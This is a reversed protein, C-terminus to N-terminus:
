WDDGLAEGRAPTVAAWFTSPSMDSSLVRVSGDALAALMGGRHPTQPIRPDCDEIAPRTQFTVYAISGMTTPPNGSRLPYVDDKTPDYPSMTPDAFTARHLVDAPLILANGAYFWNFQTNNCNAYHEGFAITNSTGDPFTKFL